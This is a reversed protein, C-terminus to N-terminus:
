ELRSRYKTVDEAVKLPKHNKKFGTSRLYDLVSLLCSKHLFTDQKPDVVTQTAPAFCLFSLQPLAQIGSVQRTKM